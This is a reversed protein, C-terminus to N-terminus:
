RNLEGNRKLKEIKFNKSELYVATDDLKRDYCKGRRIQEKNKYNRSSSELGSALSQIQEKNLKITKTNEM